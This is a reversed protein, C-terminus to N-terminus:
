QPLSPWPVGELRVSQASLMTSDDLRPTVLPLLLALVVPTMRLEGEVVEWDM